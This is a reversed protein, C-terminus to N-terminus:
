TLTYHEFDAVVLKTPYMDLNQPQGLEATSDSVTNELNFMRIVFGVAQPEKMAVLYQPSGGGEMMRSPFPSFDRPLKCTVRLLRWTMNSFSM